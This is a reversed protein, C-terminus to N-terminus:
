HNYIDGFQTEICVIEFVDNRRFGLFSHNDGTARLALLTELENPIDQIQIKISKLPIKETGLGHRPSQYLGQWTLNSFLTLHRIFDKFFVVNKEDKWSAETLYRFGFTVTPPNTIRDLQVNLKKQISKVQKM